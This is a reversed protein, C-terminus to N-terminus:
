TLIKVLRDLRDGGLEHRYSPSVLELGGDLYILRPYRREGKLRLMQRYGNWEIDHLEVCQDTKPVPSALLQPELASSM